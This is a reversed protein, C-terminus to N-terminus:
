QEWQVDRSEEGHPEAILDFLVESQQGRSRGTSGPVNRRGVANTDGAQDIRTV